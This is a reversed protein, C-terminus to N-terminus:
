PNLKHKAARDLGTNGSATQHDEKKQLHKTYETELSEINNVNDWNISNFVDTEVPTLDDANKQANTFLKDREEPNLSKIFPIYDEYEDGYSAKCADVDSKCEPVMKLGKAAAFLATVIIRWNILMGGRIVNKRKKNRTSTSTKKGSKRRRAVSRKMKTKAM